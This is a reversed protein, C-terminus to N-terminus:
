FEALLRRRGAEDLATFSGERIEYVQTCMTLVSPRHTTVICTKNRYRAMINRLIRRETAVDLASTAEDLLLIPADHLLARAISLRQGQGESLLGGDQGIPSDLGRPLSRVAGALEALELAEWLEAESADQRALRLTEAVTGSFLAKEQPVYSFLTRAGPCLPLRTGSGGFLEARGEEPQILCLLLRLLTTKGAGSPGVIAAVQGPTARFDSRRLVPKGPRYSFGAQCLEVGVGRPDRRLEEVQPPVEEPERPLDLVEMIRKAAVTAGIVRPGLQLLSRASSSLYGSLQIFLVMTGFDIRGSWLRYVGWGLCLYASAMGLLSMGANVKVSLGNQRLALNMHRDQLELLKERFRDVLGFAKVSQINQLSDSCFATLDGTAAMVEQNYIRLKPTLWGFVAGSVPVSLLALVAMVPDFYVIVGLVGLFQVLGTILSPIWGLVSGAVTGADKDLRNLLDGSHFGSIPQWGTNLFKGFLDGRIEKNVQLGVQASVRANVASLGVRFLALGLFWGALPVARLFAERDRSGAVVLNILQRSLLSSGLGVATSALGLVIYLIIRGWYRRAYHYIWRTERVIDRLTGQKVHKVVKQVYSM